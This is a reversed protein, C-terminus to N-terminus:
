SRNISKAVRMALNFDDLLERVSQQRDEPPKSLAKRIVGDVDIPVEPRMNIISPVPPLEMDPHMKANIYSTGFPVVGAIMHYLTAGLSYIDSRYTVKGGFHEPSCYQYTGLFRTVTTGTENSLVRAM